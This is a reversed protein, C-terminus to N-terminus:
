SLLTGDILKKDDPKPFRSMFFYPLMFDFKHAKSDIEYIISLQALAINISTLILNKHIADTVKRLIEATKTEWDTFDFYQDGYFYALRNTKVRSETFVKKVEAAEEEEEPPKISSAASPAAVLSSAYNRRPQPASFTAGPSSSANESPTTALQLPSTSAVGTSKANEDRKSVKSAPKGAAEDDRSGQSSPLTSSAYTLILDNIESGAPRPRKKTNEPTEIPQQDSAYISVPRNVAFLLALLLIKLKDSFM